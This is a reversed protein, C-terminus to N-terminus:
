DRNISVNNLVLRHNSFNKVFILCDKEKVKIDHFVLFIKAISM